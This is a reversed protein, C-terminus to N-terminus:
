KGEAKRPKTLLLVAGMNRGGLEEARIGLERLHRDAQAQTRMKAAQLCERLEQETLQCCFSESALLLGIEPELVGQLPFIGEQAEGPAAAMARINERNFSRNLLYTRHRGQSVLLFHKGVCLLGVFDLTEQEALLGCGTLEEVTKEITEALQREIRPMLNEPERALRRWPLSRFWTLLQETLYAGARGRAEGEGACLCALCLPTGRYQYHQLLLSSDNRGQQWYASTLLDM